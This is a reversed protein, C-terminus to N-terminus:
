TIEISTSKVRWLVGGLSTSIIFMFFILQPSRDLIIIASVAIVAIFLCMLLLMTFKISKHRIYNRIIGVVIAMSIWSIIFSLLTVNDM